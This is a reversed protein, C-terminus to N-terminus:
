KVIAKHPAPPFIMAVIVLGVEGKRYSARVDYLSGAAASSWRARSPRVRQLTAHVPCLLDGRLLYLASIIPEICQSIERALTAELSAPRGRM